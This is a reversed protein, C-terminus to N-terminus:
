GNATEWETIAARADEVWWGQMMDGTKNHDDWATVADRLAEVLATVEPPTTRTNWAAISLQVGNEDTADTPWSISPEICDVGTSGTCYVETWEVQNHSWLDEDIRTSIGAESGCFPCPKLESM